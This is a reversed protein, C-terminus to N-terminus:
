KLITFKGSKNMKKGKIRVLYVGSSVKKGQLNRLNWTVEEVEGINRERLQQSFVKMGAINFIEIEYRNGRGTNPNTWRFYFKATNRVPNSAITIAKTRVAIEKPITDQTETLTKYIDPIGWGYRNDPADNRDAFAKLNKIILEPTWHPYKQLLLACCGAILPTSFSTGNSYRYTTPEYSNAVWTRYGRACVEPKIRGDFTPGHSSFYAIEGNKDVAGVTLAGYADAPTILGGDSFRTADNGAATVLLVGREYLWNAAITTVGTEGDLDEYTYEFNDFDRYGLSSSIIEAGEAEMWELAAVYYDEEIRTESQLVETKALLVEVDYASGILMEPVHGAICSLAATGHSHQIGGLSDAANEDQVNDDDNIFDYQAILRDNELLYNFVQHDTRFGTDVIGMRIGRGTIGLEHTRIVNLQALQEESEGYFGAPKSLYQVPASSEIPERDRRRIGVPELRDVFPLRLLASRQAEDIRASYACLSRSYNRMRITNQRIANEIDQPPQYDSVDKEWGIKSLRQRTKEAYVLQNGTRKELYQRNLFVWVIATNKSQSLLSSPILILTFYFFILCISKKM